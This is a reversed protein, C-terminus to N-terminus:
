MLLVAIIGSSTNPPTMYRRKKAGNRNGSAGQNALLGRPAQSTQQAATETSRRRKGAINQHPHSQDLQPWPATAIKM